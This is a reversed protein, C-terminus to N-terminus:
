NTDFPTHNLYIREGKLFITSSEDAFFSCIEQRNKLEGQIGDM